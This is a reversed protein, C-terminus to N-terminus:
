YEVEVQGNYGSAVDILFRGIVSHDPFKKANVDFRYEGESESLPNLSHIQVKNGSSGIVAKSGKFLNPFEASTGLIIELDSIMANRIEEASSPEGKIIVTDRSM